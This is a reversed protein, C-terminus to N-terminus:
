REESATAEEASEAPQAAARRRRVLLVAQRISERIPGRAPRESAPPYPAYRGLAIAGVQAAAGGWALFALTLTVPIYGVTTLALLYWIADLGLGFRFAFSGLLLLPGAFGVAYVGLRAALGRDAVQPLWLWAHLSPLIFILTYPNHAAVVLAVVGLVLMAALHGGLEEPRTVQRRPVLRPRVVLWGIAALGALVILATVPWDTAASTDPAIPRAAGGPLIGTVAFFAVLGGAWLWAGLRSMYSRLAPRVAIHRRRCRAFLDITAALFPLLATLLFFQITWGRLLRSGVYVYSETGRAVEAAADLAALLAQASRGLEDLRTRDFAAITDGAPKPPRVGSTTLTIAPVGKGIFPAQEYLSFPFALDILQALASSRAAPSHTQVLVSEEATALLPSAPSRPTDGAFEIKPAGHGALADLNIVAVIRGEYESSRAFEDAGLGGYAGGDTSLFVLTHAVSATSVNRALELLAGTGSANDNAGPSGGLNDRHAMIVITQRSRAVTEEARVPPVAVLNVLTEHGRGPIEASFTQRQVSFRFERFRAAVWDAAERAHTSGPTRDPHLGAFVTALQVATTRDFSPPLRPQQLAVPRGVSFAAVLLPVAVAIWGARYIRGSVPRELSGRRPRRRPPAAAM